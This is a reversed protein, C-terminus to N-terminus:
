LQNAIQIAQHKLVCYALQNQNIIDQPVLHYVNMIIFYIRPVQHYVHLVYQKQHVLLALLLVNYVHDQVQILIIDMTVHVQVHIEM